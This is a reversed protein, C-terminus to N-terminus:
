PRNRKSIHRDPNAVAEIDLQLGRVEGLPRYGGSRSMSTISYCTGEYQFQVTGVSRSFGSRSQEAVQLLEDCGNRFEAALSISAGAQADEIITRSVSTPNWDQLDPLDSLAADNLPYMFEYSHLTRSQGTLTSPALISSVLLPEDDFEVSGARVKTDEAIDKQRAAQLSAVLAIQAKRESELKVLEAADRERQAAVHHALRIKRTRKAV